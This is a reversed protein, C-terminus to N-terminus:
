ILSCIDNGHWYMSTTKTSNHWYKQVTFRKFHLKEASEWQLPIMDMLPNNELPQVNRCM